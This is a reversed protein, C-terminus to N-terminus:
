RANAPVNNTGVLPAKAFAMYIYNGTGNCDSAQNRWKFGNSLFDFGDTTQEVSAANAYMLNLTENYGTRKNDRLQWGGTGDTKKIIIFAPSFGTYVFAGNANNNGTYSGFKSYGPVDAFAYMIMPDSGGNTQGDNGLTILSSTPETDNWMGTNTLVAQTNNLELYKTAGVSSHYVAWDRTSTLRKTMIMKPASNLGHAITRGSGGSGTYEYIGFGATANISVATPAESSGSPISTTGAKWNWSVNRENNRNIDGHEGVIYGDSNFATIMTSNTAEADTTDSYLYKTGGSVANILTNSWTDDRNKTWVFDPQFGIGSITQSNSTPSGNGTYLKTNFYDSSKNITTYAM